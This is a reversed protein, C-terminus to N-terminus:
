FSILEGDLPILLRDRSIGIAEASSRMKQRSVTCHDLSDMHIAIFRATPALALLSLTQEDDMILLTGGLMAGGSHTVVVDPKVKELVSRVAPTSVTDSAFYITPEGQARLLFGTVAGMQELIAGTGHQAPTGEVSLGDFIHNAMLLEANVFGQTRLAELDSPQCLIATDKRIEELATADFHDPHLHSILMLQVNTLVSAVSVPLDVTPNPEVGAFSPLSGKPGLCPDILIDIGAYNLRVTANRILQLKM